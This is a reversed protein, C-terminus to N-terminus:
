IDPTHLATVSAQRRASSDLSVGEDSVKRVNILGKRKMRKVGSPSTFLDDAHTGLSTHLLAASRTGDQLKCGPVSFLLLM